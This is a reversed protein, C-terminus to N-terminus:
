NTVCCGLQSVLLFVLTFFSNLTGRMRKHENGEAWLLSRGMLREFSSQLDKTKRYNYVNKAEIDFLAQPDAVVLQLICRLRLYIDIPPHHLHDTRYRWVKM